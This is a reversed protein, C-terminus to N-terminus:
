GNETHKHLPAGSDSNQLFRGIFIENYWKITETTAIEQVWVM